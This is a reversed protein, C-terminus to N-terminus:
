SLQLLPDPQQEDSDIRATNIFGRLALWNDVVHSEDEHSYRAINPPIITVRRPLKEGFMSVEFTAQRIRPGSPVGAKRQKLAAFVDTAKHVEVSDYTGGWYLHVETVRVHKIPVADTCVLCASDGCRLPELTYRGIDPFHDMAGFLHQGFAGRYLSTEWKSRAYVRLTGSRADYGVIDFRLPRYLVSTEETGDIAGERRRPDAHRVMFLCDCDHEYALVRVGRGRGKAEFVNDLYTELPAFIEPLLPPLRPPPHEGNQFYEFRRPRSAFLEAHKREVIAPDKLWARVAVDAPEAGFMVGTFEESLEPLLADMGEPTAMENTFYLADTLGRPPQLDSTALIKSLKRLDLKAAEKTRPLALGQATFFSRYPRILALLSKPSIERLSEPRVFRKIKYVAM